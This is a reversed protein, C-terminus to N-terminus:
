PKPAVAPASFFDAVKCRFGPLVEEATLEDAATFVVPRQGLRYVTVTRSKPNAVWLLPFGARTYEAIKEEVEYALDKPSIVEVALDPVIPMFGPNPEPLARIREVKVVTADPKRVRLPEEAFCQYGLSAPFAEAVPKELLFAKFRFFFAGEIKSSELSVNKEVIRGNVLEMTSSDPMRLLEEPTITRPQEATLTM